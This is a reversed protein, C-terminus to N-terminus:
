NQPRLVAEFSDAIRGIDFTAEAYKRGNEGLSKRLSEDRVLRKACEVFANLDGPAALLGSNSQKVIRAALNELPVSLLLAKGSCLYTLVKSPVSFIGAEPELIAILVDATGFVFCMEEFKQFPLLMLNRMGRQRATNQIWQAAPGESIVVVRVNDDAAFTEALRVLIEPNHKMGLTGSYILCIKETLQMQAAWLNRKDCPPVEDLPAWNPIVSIKANPIGWATITSSFDEAIVVIEDSDHLMKREMKNYYWAILSGIIGLRRGLLTKIAVSYIDQLWFVFRIGQRKCAKILIYQADLPTNGSIVVEPKFKTMEHVLLHGYEIEQKRRKLYSLKDFQQSLKIGAISFEKPDRDDQSLRGRPTQIFAAFIHRVEHGRAALARSLQVQFPHGAYDHILIRM